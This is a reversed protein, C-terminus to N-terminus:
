HHARARRRRYSALPQEVAAHKTEALMSPWAAAAQHDEALNLMDLALIRASHLEDMTASIGRLDLYKVNDLGRAEHSELLTEDTEQGVLVLVPLDRQRAHVADCLVLPGRRGVHGAVVALSLPSATLTGVITKEDAATIVQIEPHHLACALKTARKLDGTAVLVTHMKETV